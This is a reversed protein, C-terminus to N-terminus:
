GARDREDRTGTSHENGEEQENRGAAYRAAIKRVREIEQVNHANTVSFVRDARGTTENDAAWLGGPNRTDPYWRVVYRKPM